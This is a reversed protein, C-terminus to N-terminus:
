VRQCVPFTSNKKTSRAHLRPATRPIISHFFFHSTENKCLHITQNACELDDSKTNNDSEDSLTKKFEEFSLGQGSHQRSQASMFADRVRNSSWTVGVSKLAFTFEALDLFGNGDTDASNFAEVVADQKKVLFNDIKDLCSSVTNQDDRLIAERACRTVKQIQTKLSTDVLKQALKTVDSSSAVRSLITRYKTKLTSYRFEALKLDNRLKNM